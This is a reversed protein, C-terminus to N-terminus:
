HTRLYQQTYGSPLDFTNAPIAEREIRTFTQQAIPRGQYYSTTELPIAAFGVIDNMEHWNSFWDEDMMTTFMPPLVSNAPEIFRWVRNLMQFDAPSLGGGTMPAICVDKVKKGDATRAYNECRLGAITKGGEAKAYGIQPPLLPPPAPPDGVLGGLGREVLKQEMMPREVPPLRALQEQLQAQYEALAGQAKAILAAYRQITEPSMEVYFKQQTDIHWLRDLDGRFILINGPTIIKLRDTDLYITMSDMQGSNRGDLSTETGSVVVGAMAHGCVALMAIALALSRISM